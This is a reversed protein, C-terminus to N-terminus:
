RRAKKSRKSVKPKTGRKPRRAKKVPKAKRSMTTTKKAKRRKPALELADKETMLGLAIKVAIVGSQVPDSPRYEGNPGRPM